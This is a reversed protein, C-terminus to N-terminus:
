KVGVVKKWSDYGWITGAKFGNEVRWAKIANATNKGCLGDAPVGVIKQVIKTLNKNKYGVLQKQVIAKKMVTDTEFGYKGDAGYKPFKFGDAMAAKQFELVTPKYDSKPRNIHYGKKDMYTYWDDGISKNKNQENKDRVWSHIKSAFM